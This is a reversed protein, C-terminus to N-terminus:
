NFLRYPHTARSMVNDQPQPHFFLGAGMAEGAKFLPLFRPEDWNEGNVVTDLEAGKLGLITVARELEDIAATVDQVPLTALGAFRRPWQRAMAAIEDNVDRALQRGQSIPLACTQVGTVSSNRIVEEEAVFVIRTM